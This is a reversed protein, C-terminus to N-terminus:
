QVGADGEIKAILQELRRVSGWLHQFVAMETSGDAFCGHDLFKATARLVEGEDWRKDFTLLDKATVLSALINQRACDRTRKRWDQVEKFTPKVSDEQFRGVLRKGEELLAKLEDIAVIVLQPAKSQGETERHARENENVLRLLYRIPLVIAVAGIIIVCVRQWHIMQYQTAAYLVAVAPVM